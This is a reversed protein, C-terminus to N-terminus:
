PLYRIVFRFPDKDPSVKANWERILDVAPQQERVSYAMARVLRVLKGPEGIWPDTEPAEGNSRSLLHYAADVRDNESAGSVWARHALENAVRALETSGREM